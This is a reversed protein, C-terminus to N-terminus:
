KECDCGTGGPGGVGALRTGSRGGRDGAGDGSRGDGRGAVEMRRAAYKGANTTRADAPASAAGGGFNGNRGSTGDKGIAARYNRKRQGSPSTARTYRGARAGCAGSLVGDERGDGRSNETRGSRNRGAIHGECLGGAGQGTKRGNRNTARCFIGTQRRWNRRWPNRRRHIGRNSEAFTGGATRAGTGGQDRGGSTALNSKESARDGPSGGTHVIERACRTAGAWVESSCARGAEENCSTANREARDANADGANATGAGDGPRFRNTHWCRVAPCDDFFKEGM